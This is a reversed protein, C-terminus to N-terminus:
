KSFMLHHKDIFSKKYFYLWVMPYIDYKSKLIAEKGAGIFHTSNLKKPRVLKRGDKYCATSIGCAMEAETEEMIEYFQEMADIPLWDDVDLFYIYEGEAYQYGVNRADSLGGNEKNVLQIRKDEKVWKECISQSNDKSGDNVLIIQLDTITQNVVTQMCKDIYKQANYIPIIISIKGM